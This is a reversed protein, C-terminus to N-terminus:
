LEFSALESSTKKPPIPAWKPSIPKAEGLTLLLTIHVGNRKVSVAIQEGPSHYKAYVTVAKIADKPSMSDLNISDVLSTVSVIRDGTQLKAAEAAGGPVVGTVTLHTLPSVSLMVQLAGVKLNGTRKYQQMALTIHSSPVSLSIGEFGGSKTMIETNIGVVSGWMNFLPGGSNGPNVAVDSQNMDNLLRGEIHERDLASIIGQSVTFKFGLPNGIAVVTEGRDLDSWLPLPPRNLSTDLLEVFAIDKGQDSNGYALIKGKTMVPNNDDDEYLGVEIEAGVALREVCHSNTTIISQRGLAQQADTFFGTCDGTQTKTGINEDPITMRLYVVSPEVRRIMDILYKQALLRPDGSDTEQTTPKKFSGKYAKAQGILNNSLSSAFDDYSSASAPVALTLALALPSLKM